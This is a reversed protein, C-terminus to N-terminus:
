GAVVDAGSVKVAVPPLPTNAPGVLVKGTLDFQSGHCPCNLQKKQLLVKCGQHTCLASVAAVTGASPQTIVIPQGTPGTVVLGGGVPVDALKALAKPGAASGGSSGAAPSGAGGGVGATGAATSGGSSGSGCAALAGAGAVGLAAAGALSVVSRRGPRAVTPDGALETADPVAAPTIDNSV